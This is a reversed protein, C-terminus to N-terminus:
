LFNILSELHMGRSGKILLQSNEIPEKDLLAEVENTTKFVELDLNKASKYFHEGVLLIRDIEKSSQLHDIINTHEQESTKGLEFMDGLIVVKKAKKPTAEFSQLSLLMSSPNANYADLMIINTETNVLQSRNNTSEYHNVAEIISPSEVRFYNGIAVAAAINKANYAGMLPSGIELNNWRLTISPNEEILQVTTHNRSDDEIGFYICNLDKSKDILRNDDINVFVVSSNNTKLYDYLETKGILINEESGFGELHAKGVNTILGFNPQAISSLLAIERMHNAGMEVIGFETKQDMNLITLPVGIHNNLNGKTATTNFKKSLIANILEKTTTKGNSGTLALIPISLYNRHFKALEQLTNLVDDVIIFQNSNLTIDDVIAFCADNDLAQQAYLNGNFNDGSLAFFLQNSSITRTDTSVGSSNLFLAHLKDIKMVYFELILKNYKM